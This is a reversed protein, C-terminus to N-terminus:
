RDFYEVLTEQDTLYDVLTTLFRAGDAGNVVRHDFSLSVTMTADERRRGVGLIAVEPPNIIPDFHDIGFMGLNSITFTGGEIDETAFEGDIVRETLETRQESIEHLSKTTTEPIVPTVLGADADV